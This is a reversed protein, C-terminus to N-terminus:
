PMTEKARYLRVASPWKDVACIAANAQSELLCDGLGDKEVCKESSARTVHCSPNM